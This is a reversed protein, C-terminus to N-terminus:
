RAPARPAARARRATVARATESAAAQARRNMFESVPHLKEFHDCLIKVVVLVPVAILAGAVGWLWGWFLMSVFVLVPHLTLRGGLIWPALLQGEITTFALFVAPVLLAQGIQEFSLFAVLSLIVLSLTAGLYPVYNFVAVMVGWLVPNPMGLWHMALGTAIGLGANVCTITFLYHAMESQITRAVGVARRKDAFTPMARVAKRLFADGSALLFFLLLLTSVASLLFRQTGDFTRMLLSPQAPVVKDKRKANDGSQAIAEVKEAVKAVQDVSKKVGRLKYELDQIIEPAKNIWEAAPASVSGAAFVLAAVLTAVVVAAGAPEPLHLSKLARVAPSLILSLLIALVVPLLFARAFYITYLIALLPLVAFLRDISDKALAHGKAPDQGSAPLPSNTM